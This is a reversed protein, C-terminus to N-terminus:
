VRLILAEEKVKKDDFLENGLILLPGEARAAGYEPSVEVSQRKHLHMVTHEHDDRMESPGTCVPEGPEDSRILKHCVPCKFVYTHRVDAAPKIFIM